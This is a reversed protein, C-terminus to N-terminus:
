NIIGIAVAHLYRLFQIKTQSKNFKGLFTLVESGSCYWQNKENDFKWFRLFISLLLKFEPSTLKEFDIDGNEKLPLKPFWIKREIALKRLKKLLSPHQFGAPLDSIM